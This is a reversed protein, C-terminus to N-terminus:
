ILSTQAQQQAISAVVEQPEPKMYGPLFVLSGSHAAVYSIFIDRVRESKYYFWEGRLHFDVFYRHLARELRRDGPVAAVLEVMFPTSTSIQCIRKFIDTSYGIKLHDGVCILYVYSEGKSQISQILQRITQQLQSVYAKPLCRAREGAVKVNYFPAQKPHPRHEYTCFVCIDPDHESVAGIGKFDSFLRLM